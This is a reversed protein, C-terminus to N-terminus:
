TWCRAPAAWGPTTSSARRDARIARVAGAVLAGVQTEDTVDCAQSWVRDGHGALEDRAAALRREHRDSIVVERARPWAAGPWPRASAPRGGRRHDGRGQRGAPGAGTPPMLPATVGPCAPDRAPRRPLGLAREAIINRQIEDSGGYITDARSFLFLRQWDDLDYPAGRAVMSRAGLVAMALEGLGPAVPVLLLKLM